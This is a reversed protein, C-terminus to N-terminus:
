PHSNAERKNRRPGIFFSAAPPVEAQAPLPKRPRSENARLWFATIAAAARIKSESAVHGSKNRAPGPRSHRYRVHFQGQRTARLGGCIVHARTDGTPRLVSKADTSVRNATLGEHFTLHVV